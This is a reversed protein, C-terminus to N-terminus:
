NKDFYFLFLDALTSQVKQPSLFIITCASAILPATFPEMLCIALPVSDKGVPIKFLIKM